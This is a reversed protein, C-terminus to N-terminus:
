HGPEQEIKQNITGPEPPFVPGFCTKIAEMLKQNARSGYSLGLWLHKGTAVPYANIFTTWYPRRLDQPIEAAGRYSGDQLSVKLFIGDVNPGEEDHATETIGGTKQITHIKFMQTHFRYVYAGNEITVVANTDFSRIVSQLKTQWEDAKATRSAIAVAATLCITLMTSRM